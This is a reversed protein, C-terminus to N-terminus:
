QERLLLWLRHNIWLEFMNEFIYLAVKKITDSMEAHITAKVHHKIGYEKRQSQMYNNIKQNRVLTMLVEVEYFRKM